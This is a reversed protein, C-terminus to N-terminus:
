PRDNRKQHALRSKGQAAACAVEPQLAGGASQWSGEPELGVRYAFFFHGDYVTMEKKTRITIVVFESVRM